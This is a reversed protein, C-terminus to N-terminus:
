KKQINNQKMECLIFAAKYEKCHSLQNEPIWSHKFAVYYLKEINKRKKRTKTEIVNAIENKWTQYGKEDLWTNKWEILFLVENRNKDFFRQNIRSIEWESEDSM